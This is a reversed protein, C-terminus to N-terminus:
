GGVAGKLAKVLALRDAERVGYAISESCPSHESRRVCCLDADLDSSLVIRRDGLVVEVAPRNILEITGETALDQDVVAIRITFRIRQRDRRDSDDPGTTLRGRVAARVQVALSHM